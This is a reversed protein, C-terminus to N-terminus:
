LQNKKPKLRSIFKNLQETYHNKWFLYGQPTKEWDFSDLAELINKFRKHFIRGKGEIPNYEDSYEIFQAIDYFDSVSLLLRLYDRLVLNTELLPDTETGIEEFTKIEVSM